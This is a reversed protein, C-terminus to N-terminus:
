ITTLHKNVQELKDRRNMHHTFLTLGEILNVLNEFSYTNNVEGLPDLTLLQYSGRDIRATKVNGTDVMHDGIIVFRDM